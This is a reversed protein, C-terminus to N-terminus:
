RSRFRERRRSTPWCLRLALPYESGVALHPMVRRFALTLWPASNTSPTNPTTTGSSPTARGAAEAILVQVQPHALMEARAAQVGADDEPQDLLDVLTRYRTWPEDSELLWEIVDTM